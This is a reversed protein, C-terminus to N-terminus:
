WSKQALELAARAIALVSEISQKAQAGDHLTSNVYLSRMELGHKQLRPGLGEFESPDTIIPEYGKLGTSAIGALLQESHLQFPQNACRVFTLWPYTNTAIHPSGQKVLEVARLLPAFGTVLATSALASLYERRNLRM